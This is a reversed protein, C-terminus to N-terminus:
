FYDSANVFLEGKGQQIQKKIGMDISFGPGIKGQPGVLLSSKNVIADSPNKPDYLLEVKEGILWPQSKPVEVQIKYLKKDNATYIIIPYYGKTGENNFSCNDFIEGKVKVGHHKLKYIKRLKDVQKSIFIYYMCVILIIAFVAKLFMPWHM